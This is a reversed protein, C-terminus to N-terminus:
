DEGMLEHGTIEEYLEDMTIFLRVLWCLVLGCVLMPTLLLAALTRM